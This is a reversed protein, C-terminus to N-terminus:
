YPLDFTNQANYSGQHSPQVWQNQLTPQTLAPQTLTPQTLTPQTLTPQTLTPQALTPQATEVPEAADAPPEPLLQPRYDKVTLQLLAEIYQGNATVLANDGALIRSGIYEVEGQVNAKWQEPEKNMCIVTLLTHKEEYRTDIITDLVGMQAASLKDLEDIGLVPLTTFHHKWYSATFETEATPNYTDRGYTKGNKRANQMIVDVMEKANWYEVQKGKRLMAALVAKLIESKGTGPNGQMSWFGYGQEILQNAADRLMQMQGNDEERDVIATVTAQRAKDSLRSKATYDTCTDCPFPKGYDPHGRRVDKYTFGQGQCAECPNQRNSSMSSSAASPNPM